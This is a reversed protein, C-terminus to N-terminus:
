VSNSSSHTDAIANLPTRLEHSMAALFEGEGPEGGRGRFKATSHGRRHGCSSPWRDSTRATSNRRWARLRKTRSAVPTRSHASKRRGGNRSIASVKSFGALQQPCRAGHHHGREGLVALWGEYAGGRRRTSGTRIAIDLERQPKGAAVDEPPYFRSFHSGVIEDRTARSGTREKTGPPSIGDTSCSSRM